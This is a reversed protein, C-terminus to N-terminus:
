IRTRVVQKNREEETANSADTEPVRFVFSTCLKLEAECSVCQMVMVVIVIVTRRNIVNLIITGREKSRQALCM